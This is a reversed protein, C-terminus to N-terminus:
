DSKADHERSSIESQIKKAAEIAEELLRDPDTGTMDVTCGLRHTGQLKYVEASIENIHFTWEPLASTKTEM